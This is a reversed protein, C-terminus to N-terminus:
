FCRIFHFNPKNLIIKILFVTLTTKLLSIKMGFTAIPKNKNCFAINESLKGVHKVIRVFNVWLCRVNAWIKHKILGRYRSKAHPYHYGLQFITAEVNNRINLIEPPIAAIKKRLEAATIEKQTFYRYGKATRIRWKAQNKIRTVPINENTKTDTVTLEHDDSLSLCLRPAAGQIASLILNIEEKKCFEQNSVSHFAGDAHANEIPETFIKQAQSVAGQLFDNDAASAQRVDVSSILNLKERDCSEIVNVSYGKVKNEDKRRYHCDPDHPSQVSQATIETKNKAAITKKGDIEFQEGFVRKLTQISNLDGFIDLLKHCLRGLIVIRSQIEDSTSRYVVKNGKEKLINELLEKQEELKPHELLSEKQCFLRLTEHVLEYRSLWAINSGLLKSDMRISRGSVEFAIAQSKTVAAFAAEILNASEVKEYEVIRKRFLYYTSETPVPDNINMVGLASRVLMNYRCQEFLQADSWGNAEKLIMMGILVRVSVNPAGIGKSFLPKFITEDIRMTVQGRFLNHWADTKQYFDGAKGALFTEPSSFLGRQSEKNSEIFM